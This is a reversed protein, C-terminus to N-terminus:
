PSSEVNPPDENVRGVVRGVVFRGDDDEPLRLPNKDPKDFTRPPSTPFNIPAAMFERPPLEEEPPKPFKPLKPPV